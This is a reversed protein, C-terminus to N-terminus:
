ERPDADDNSHTITKNKPSIKVPVPDVNPEKNQPVNDDMYREAPKEIKMVTEMAERSATSVLEHRQGKATNDGVNIEDDKHLSSTGSIVYNHTEM